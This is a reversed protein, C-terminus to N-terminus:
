HAVAKVLWLRVPNHDLSIQTQNSHRHILHIPDKAILTRQVDKVAKTGVLALDLTSLHYSDSLQISPLREILPALAM